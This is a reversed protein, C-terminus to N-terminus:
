KAGPPADTGSQGTLGIHGAARNLCAARNSLSVLRQSCALEKEADKPINPVSLITPIIRFPHRLSVTM